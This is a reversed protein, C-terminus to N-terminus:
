SDLQPRLGAPAAKSKWSVSGAMVGPAVSPGLHGKHASKFQVAHEGEEGFTLAGSGEFAGDRTLHLECELFALDGAAPLLTTEVGTPGVVTEM